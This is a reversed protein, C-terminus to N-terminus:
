ISQVASGDVSANTGEMTEAPFAQDVSFANSSM